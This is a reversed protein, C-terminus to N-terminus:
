QHGVNRLKESIDYCSRGRQASVKPLQSSWVRSVSSRPEKITLSPERTGLEKLQTASIGRNFRVGALDITNLRADRPGSSTESM